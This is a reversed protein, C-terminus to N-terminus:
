FYSDTMDFRPFFKEDDMYSIDRIEFFIVVAFFLGTCLYIVIIVSLHRIDNLTSM